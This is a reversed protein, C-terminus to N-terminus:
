SYYLANQVFPSKPFTVIISDYEKLAEAFREEIVDTQAQLFTIEALYHSTPYKQLFHVAEDKAYGYHKDRYLSKILQFDEAEASITSSQNAARL